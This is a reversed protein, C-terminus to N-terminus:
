AHAVGPPDLDCLAHLSLLLTHFYPNVAVGLGQALGNSAPLSLQPSVETILGGVSVWTLMERWCDMGTLSM